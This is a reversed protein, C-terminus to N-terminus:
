AFFRLFLIMSKKKQSNCMSYKIQSINMQEDLKMQMFSIFIDQQLCASNAFFGETFCISDRLISQFLSAKTSQALFFILSHRM